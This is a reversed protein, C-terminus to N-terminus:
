RDGKFLGVLVKPDIDSGHPDIKELQGVVIDELSQGNLDSVVDSDEIGATNSRPILRTERVLLSLEQRILNVDELELGVDDKIELISTPRTNEQLTKSELMSVVDSAIFRQYLPGQQWDIFQPQEGWRLVMMGRETDGVDNFDHGFPNGIYWVPVGTRNTKVQRKHFHGSFVMEPAMLQDSNFQGTDRFEITANTLFRPLEFHGFLYKAEMQIVELYETGVLFPVLGVGDLITCRNHVRVNPWMEYACISHIDRSHKFFMDHNGVLMEVPAVELLRKLATTGYYHTDLRLRSQNDFWDGLFLIRDAEAAAAQECFWDIYNMCDQNHVPSDSRDGFHIDGFVAATKFLPM